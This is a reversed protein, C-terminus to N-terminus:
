SLNLKHSAQGLCFTLVEFDKSLRRFLPAERDYPPYDFTSVLHYSERGQRAYDRVWEAESRLRLQRLFGPYVGSWFLLFDGIHRHVIREREFSDARLSIDGEAMMEGISTVQQGESDRIAFIADTRMFRALLMTLYDAIEERSGEPYERRLSDMMVTQFSSSLEKWASEEPHAM